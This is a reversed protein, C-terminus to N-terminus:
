SGLAQYRGDLLRTSPASDDRGRANGDGQLAWHTIKVLLVGGGTSTQLSKWGDM